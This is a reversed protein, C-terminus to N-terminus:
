VLSFIYVSYIKKNEKSEEKKLDKNPALPVTVNGYICYKNQMCIYDRAAKSSAEIDL